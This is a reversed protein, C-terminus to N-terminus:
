KVAIKDQPLVGYLENMLSPSVQVGIGLKFTQDTDTNKVFTEDGGPYVNLIGQIRDLLGEDDNKFSLYFCIKKKVDVVPKVDKWTEVSDM